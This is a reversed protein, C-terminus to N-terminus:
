ARRRALSGAAGAAPARPALGGRTRRPLIPKTAPDTPAEMVFVKVLGVGLGLVGYLMAAYGQSLFFGAIMYALLSGFVAMAMAVQDNAGPGARARIAKAAQNVYRFLSYLIAVFLLLGTVGLEAGIQVFSNHPAAWAWGRGQELREKNFESQGEAYEFNNAGVGTLPHSVMYGFGRKWIEMRGRDSNGSWNYDTKPSLISRMLTWYQATGFVSMVVVALIISGVRLRVPIGKHKVLLFVGVALFALFGGRSGSRVLSVIFIILAGLALLRYLPRGRKAIFYVAFPVVCDVMMAFDNADYSPLHSLRGGAGVKFRSVVVVCFIVGGILYSMAIREVDRFSRVAAASLLFFLLLTLYDQRVFNFSQGPYMGLPVSIVVLAGIALVLKTTSLKLIQRFSRAPDTAVLWALVAVITSVLAIHLVLLYSFVGLVQLRWVYTLVMGMVAVLFVELRAAGPAVRARSRSAVADDNPSSRPVALSPATTVFDHDGWHIPVREAASM